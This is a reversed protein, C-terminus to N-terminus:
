FLQKKNTSKQKNPKFEFLDAISAIKLFFPPTQPLPSKNIGVM